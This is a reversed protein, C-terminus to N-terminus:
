LIWYGLIKFNWYRLRSQNLRWSEIFLFELIKLIKLIKFKYSKFKETSSRSISFKFIEVVLILAKLFALTQGRNRLDSLFKASQLNQYKRPYNSIRLQAIDGPNPFRICRSWLSFDSARFEIWLDWFKSGRLNFHVSESLKREHM